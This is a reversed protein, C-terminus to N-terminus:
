AQTRASARLGLWQLVAHDYIETTYSKYDIADVLGGAEISLPIHFADLYNWAHQKWNGDLARRESQPACSLEDLYSELEQLWPKSFAELGSRKKDWDLLPYRVLRISHTVQSITMKVPFNCSADFGM